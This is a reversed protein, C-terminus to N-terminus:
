KRGFMEALKVQKLNKPQEFHEHAIAPRVFKCYRAGKGLAMDNNMRRLEKTVAGTTKCAALRDRMSDFGERRMATWFSRLKQLDSVRVGYEKCLLDMCRELLEADTAWFQDRFSHMKWIKVGKNQLSAMLIPLEASNSRAWFSGGFSHLHQIQVGTSQLTSMFTPLNPDNIRAWFCDGFSHLHQIQVGITQLTSMFTPLNPDNIRAWFSDGFSHLHQIQVGTSQLTSMFTSMNPDNIRAWFSGGFKNLDTIEVGKSKLEELFIPLRPDDVLAWFCHSFMCIRRSDVGLQQLHRIMSIVADVRSKVGSVAALKLALERSELVQELEKLKQAFITELRAWAESVAAEVAAVRAGSANPNPAGIAELVANTIKAPHFSKSVEVVTAGEMPPFPAAGEERVRVVMANPVALMRETKRIDAALRIDDGHTHAPDWEVLLDKGNFPQHIDVRGIEHGRQISALISTSSPERGLAYDLYGAIATEQFSHGSSTTPLRPAPEPTPEPAPAAVSWEEERARGEVVPVGSTAAEPEYYSEIEEETKTRKIQKVLRLGDHPPSEQSEHTRKSSMAKLGSHCEM